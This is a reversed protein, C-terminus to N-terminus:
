SRRPMHANPLALTLSRRRSGRGNDGLSSAVFSARSERLAKAAKQGPACPALATTVAEASPAAAAVFSKQPSAPSSYTSPRRPLSREGASRVVVREETLGPGACSPPPM